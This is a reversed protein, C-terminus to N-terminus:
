DDYREYAEFLSNISRKLWTRSTQEDFKWLLVAAPVIIESREAPDAIQDSQDLTAILLDYSRKEGPSLPKKKPPTTEKDDPKKAEGKQRATSTESKNTQTSTQAYVAITQMLVAVSIACIFALRFKNM